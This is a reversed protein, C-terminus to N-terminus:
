NVLSGAIRFYITREGGCLVCAMRAIRVRRGDVTAALHEDIRMVGGCRLCNAGQAVVEVLSASVVDIPREPSGGPELEALRQRDRGIKEAARLGARRQAKRSLKKKRPAVHCFALLKRTARPIAHAARKHARTSGKVTGDM